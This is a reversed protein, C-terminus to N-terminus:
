FLTLLVILTPSNPRTTQPTLKPDHREINQTQSHSPSLSCALICNSVHVNHFRDTDTCDLAIALLVCSSISPSRKKQQHDTHVLNSRMEWGLFDFKQNALILIDLLMDHVIRVVCIYKDRHVQQRRSNPQHTSLQTFSNEFKRRTLTCESMQTSM